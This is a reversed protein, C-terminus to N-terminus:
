FKGENKDEISSQEDNTYFVGMNGYSTPISTTSTSITVTTDDGDLDGFAWIGINKYDDAVIKENIWSAM